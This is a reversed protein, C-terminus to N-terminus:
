GEQSCLSTALRGAGVQRLRGEAYETVYMFVSAITISMLWDYKLHIHALSFVVVVVFFLHVSAAKPAIGELVDMFLDLNLLFVCM